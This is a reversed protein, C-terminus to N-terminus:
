GLDILYRPSKCLAWHLVSMTLGGIGLWKHLRYMKDLGGLRPELWLPRAALLMGLSMAGLGLVGTLQTLSNRWVFFNGSGIWDTDTLLWLGVLLASAALFLRHIAQM